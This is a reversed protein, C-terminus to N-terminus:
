SQSHGTWEGKVDIVCLINWWIICLINWRNRLTHKKLSHLTNNMSIFTDHQISFNVRMWQYSIQQWWLIDNKKCNKDFNTEKEPNKSNANHWFFLGGSQSKYLRFALISTLWTLTKQNLWEYEVQKFTWIKKLWLSLVLM